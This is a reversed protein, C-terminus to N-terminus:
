AWATTSAVKADEFEIVFEESGGLRNKITITRSNASKSVYVGVGADEGLFKNSIDTTATIDASLFDAACKFWTKTTRLIVGFEMEETDDTLTVTMSQGNTAIAGGSAAYQGVAVVSANTADNVATTPVEGKQGQSGQTGQFGQNGQTGQNGQFGQNGQTGQNGQFGQNGQTGQNGQFGQSGTDGQNGQFGQSGTTGQYGQYGQVGAMGARWKLGSPDYGFDMQGGALWVLDQGIGTDIQNEFAASSHLHKVTVSGSTANVLTLNKDPKGDAIGRLETVVGILRVKSTKVTSLATINGTSADDTSEVIVEQGLVVKQEFEAM